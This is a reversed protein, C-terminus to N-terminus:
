LARNVDTLDPTRTGERGNVALVLDHIARVALALEAEEVVFSISCESSGQSISIVNVGAAGLVTFIQGAVGPTHQMGAGVVTIIAVEEMLAVAAVDGRVMEAALEAEVARKAGDGSGERVLFCFNQEASSQSIMLISAGGRATALFARGAIGPVGQMGRGSVTLLAVDAISTVARIAAKSPATVASEPIILTGQGAPQFTNCVRIPIGAEVVPQVTRPHLVRAGFYALQGVETYTVSELVRARDDLRPDVTMVGDVDTWIILECSECCRAVIAASFDSGGRGLTTTHGAATAGIFGTLVPIEGAELMPLIVERLREATPSWLPNASMYADDTLILPQQSPQGDSGNTSLARTALGEQRLLAALLPASLREGFSMASARIRPTAEGLIHVADCIQLHADCRENLQALLPELIEEDHILSQALELHRDRLQGCEALYAWREGATASELARELSDTVGALASVVAVVREGRARTAALIEAVAPLAVMSTGGFKMTLVRM